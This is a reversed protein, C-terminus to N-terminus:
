RRKKIFAFGEYNGAVALNKCALLYDRLEPIDNLDRNDDVEVLLAQKHEEFTLSGRCTGCYAGRAEAGKIAETGLIGGYYDSAVTVHKPTICYPHPVGITDTIRFKETTPFEELKSM